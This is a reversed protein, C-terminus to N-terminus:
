NSNKIKVARYIKVICTNLKVYCTKMQINTKFLKKVVRKCNKYIVLHWNLILLILHISKSINMLVVLYLVNKNSYFTHKQQVPFLVHILFFLFPFNKCNFLLDYLWISNLTSFLSSFCSQKEFHCLCTYIYDHVASSFTFIDSVSKKCNKFDIHNGWGQITCITILKKCNGCSICFFM